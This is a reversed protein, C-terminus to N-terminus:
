DIPQWNAALQDHYYCDIYLLCRNCRSSLWSFSDSATAGDPAADTLEMYHGHRVHSAFSGLCDFVKKSMSLTDCAKGELGFKALLVRVQAESPADADPEDDDDDDTEASDPNEAHHYGKKLKAAIQSSIFAEAAEQSKHDKEASVGLAGIKGPFSARTLGRTILVKYM